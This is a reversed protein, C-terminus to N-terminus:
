KYFKLTKVRIKIIFFHHFFVKCTIGSITREPATDFYTGVSTRADKQNVSFYIKLEFIINVQDSCDRCITESEAGSEGKLKVSRSRVKM